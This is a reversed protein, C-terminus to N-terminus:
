IHQSLQNLETLYGDVKNEVDVKKYFKKRDLLYGRFGFVKASLVISLSDDVVVGKSKDSLGTIDIVRQWFKPDPKDFPDGTIIHSKSFLGKLGQNEVRIVKKKESIKPDYRMSEGEFVLRRDSGTIIFLNERDLCRLYNIAETYAQSGTSVADWYADITQTITKGDLGLKQQDSLYRLWLERSWMFNFSIGALEPPVLITYSNLKDRLSIPKPDNNGHHISDLDYFIQGFLNGASIGKKDLREKLFDKVRETGADQNFPALSHDVDLLLTCNM